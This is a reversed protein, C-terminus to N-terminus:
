FSSFLKLNCINHIVLSLVNRILDKLLGDTEELTDVVHFYSQEKVYSNQFDKPFELFFCWNCLEYRM